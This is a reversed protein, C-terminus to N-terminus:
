RQENLMEDMNQPCTGTLTCSIRIRDGRWARDSGPIRCLQTAAKMVLLNM